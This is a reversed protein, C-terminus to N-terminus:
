SGKVVVARQEWGPFEPRQRTGVWAKSPAAETTIASMKARGRHQSLVHQPLM